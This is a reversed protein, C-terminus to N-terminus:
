DAQVTGRDASGPEEHAVGPSAPSNDSAQAPMKGARAANQLRRLRHRDVVMSAVGLVIMAALEALLWTGGNKRLSARFASPPPVVGQEAAKDEVLPIIAWALATVVFLLSALLLLLYLPNRPEPSPSSM